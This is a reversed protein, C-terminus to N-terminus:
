MLLCFLSTISVPVLSVYVMFSNRSGYYMYMMLVTFVPTTARVVQHFPVTVLNLSVNSIAKLYLTTSILANCGRLLSVINITYLFSFSVMVTMEKKGLTAPRFSELVYVAIYCGIASCTAHLCTLMWPFQFGVLQMVAKNYITLALNCLFYAALWVYGNSSSSLSSASATTDVMTM